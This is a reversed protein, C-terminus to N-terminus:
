SFIIFEQKEPLFLPRLQKKDDEKPVNARQAQGLSNPMQAQRFPPKRILM